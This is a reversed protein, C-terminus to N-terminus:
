THGQPPGDYIGANDAGARQRHSPTGVHLVFLPEPAGGFFAHPRPGNGYTRLADRHAVSETTPPNAQQSAPQSARQRKRSLFHHGRANATGFNIGKRM